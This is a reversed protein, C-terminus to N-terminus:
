QKHSSLFKELDEAHEKDHWPWSVVEVFTWPYRTGDELTSGSLVKRELLSKFEEKSYGRLLQVFEKRTTEFSKLLEKTPTNKFKAVYRANVEDDEYIDWQPPKGNAFNKAGEIFELDWGVMHALLDHADWEWTTDLKTKWLNDPISKFASFILTFGDELDNITKNRKEESDM